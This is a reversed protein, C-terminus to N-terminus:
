IPVLSFGNRGSSSRHHGSELVRLSEIRYTKKHKGFTLIIAPAQLRPFVDAMQVNDMDLASSTPQSNSNLPRGM